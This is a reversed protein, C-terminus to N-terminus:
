TWHGTRIDRIISEGEKAGQWLGGCNLKVLPRDTVTARFGLVEAQCVPIRLSLAVPGQCPSYRSLYGSVRVGGCAWWECFGSSWLWGWLSCTLLFFWYLPSQLANLLNKTLSKVPIHESTEWFCEHLFNDPSNRQLVCQTESCFKITQLFTEPPLNIKSRKRPVMSFRWVRISDQFAKAYQSRM